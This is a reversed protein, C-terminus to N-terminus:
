RWYKWIVGEKFASYTGQDQFTAGTGLPTQRPCSSEGASVNRQGPCVPGRPCTKGAPSIGCSYSTLFVARAIENCTPDQRSLAGPQPSVTSCTSFMHIRGGFDGLLFSFERWDWLEKPLSTHDHKLFDKSDFSFNGNLPSTFSWPITHPTWCTFLVTWFTSKANSGFNSNLHSSLYFYDSRNEKLGTRRLRSVM